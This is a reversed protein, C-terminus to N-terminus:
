RKNKAGNSMKGAFLHKPRKVQIQRDSESVNVSHKFRKNIKKALRVHEEPVPKYALRAPQSGERRSATKSRVMKAASIKRQAPTMSRLKSKSKSTQGEGMSDDDLSPSRSRRRKRGRADGEQMAIDDDDVVDGGDSDDALVRAALKDQAAELDGLTRRSKSRSRLSEKNVDIGKSEFHDVMESLKKSKPRAKLKSKLKHNLKYIAKKSRVEKLAQKLEGMSIGTEEEVEDRGVGMMEDEQKEMKILEDEEAEM